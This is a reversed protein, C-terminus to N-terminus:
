KFQEAEHAIIQISKEVQEMNVNTYCFQLHRIDDDMYMLSSVIRSRFETNNAIRRCLQHTNVNKFKLWFYFGAAPKVWEALNNLYRLLLADTLKKRCALEARIQVFFDDLRGSLLLEEALLQNISSTFRCQQLKIDNLRSILFDSAVICAVQINPFFMALSGDVYLVKDPMLEKFTPCDAAGEWLEHRQDNEIVPMKSNGIIQVLEQRRRLSTCVGNPEIASPELYLISDNFLKSHKLLEQPLMGEDDMPVEIINIGTNKFVTVGIYVTPTAMILNLRRSCLGQALISMASEVGSTILLENCDANVGRKSLYSLYASKLSPLGDTYLLEYNDPEFLRGAAKELAPRVLKGVGFELAVGPMIRPWLRHANLKKRTLWGKSPLASREVLAQWDPASDNNKIIIPKKGGSSTLFGYSYLIEVAQSITFRSIKYEKALVRQSPLPTGEYYFGSLIKKQIDDAIRIYNAINKHM